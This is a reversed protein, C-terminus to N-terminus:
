AAEKHCRTADKQFLDPRLLRLYMRRAKPIGNHRWESVSPPEIECLRAVETTGGLIDIIESDTM